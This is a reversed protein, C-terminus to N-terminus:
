KSKRDEGWWSLKCEEKCDRLAGPSSLEELREEQDKHRSPMESIATKYKGNMHTSSALALRQKHGAKIHLANPGHLKTTTKNTHHSPGGKGDEEGEGVGRVM